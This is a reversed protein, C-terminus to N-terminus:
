APIHGPAHDPVNGQFLRRRALRNPVCVPAGGVAGKPSHRLFRGRIARPEISAPFGQRAGVRAMLARRVPFSSACSRGYGHEVPFYCAGNRNEMLPRPPWERAPAEAFQCGSPIPHRPILPPSFHRRYPRPSTLRCAAVRAAPTQPVEAAPLRSGNLWTACPGHIGANQESTHNICNGHWRCFANFRSAKAPDSSKARYLFKVAFQRKASSRPM